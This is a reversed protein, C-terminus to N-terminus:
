SYAPCDANTDCEDIGTCVGSTCAQALPGPVDQCDANTTCAYFDFCSRQCNAVTDPGNSAFQVECESLQGVPSCEECTGFTEFFGKCFLLDGQCADPEGPFATVVCTNGVQGEVPSVMLLTITSVALLFAALSAGGNHESRM